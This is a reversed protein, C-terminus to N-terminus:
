IRNLASPHNNLAQAALGLMAVMSTRGHKLEATKLKFLREDDANAALGFPDFYGGPYCRKELDTETNRAFEVYGIVLVEIVTLTYTDLPLSLGAYQSNDLEVAGAEVWNIDTVAEAAVCGTVGLMAWRGHILECERFREIGFVENYPTLSGSQVEAKAPTIRGIVGGAKNM